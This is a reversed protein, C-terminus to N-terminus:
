GDSNSVIEDLNSLGEQDEVKVFIEIGEERKKLFTRLTKLDNKTRCFSLAIFNIGKKLAHNLDKKDKDTLTPLKIKAGPFNVHKKGAIAGNDLVECTINNGLGINLIKLEIAGNDLSIKGGKKIGKVYKLNDIPLSKKGKLNKNPTLVLEEGKKLELIDSSKATRIEPGQTDIMIGISKDATKNIKTVYDIVEDLDAHSAHSMNVRVVNMGKKYLNLIGEKSRTSPGVTTIIKTRKHM